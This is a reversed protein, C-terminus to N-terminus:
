PPFKGKAKRSTMIERLHGDALHDSITGNRRLGEIKLPDTILDLRLDALKEDFARYEKEYIEEPTPGHSSLRKKGLSSFDLHRRTPATGWHCQGHLCSLPRAAYKCPHCDLRHKPQTLPHGRISSFHKWLPRCARLPGCKFMM